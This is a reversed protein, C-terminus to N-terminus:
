RLMRSFTQQQITQGQYSADLCKTQKKNKQQKKNSNKNKAALDCCRGEQLDNKLKIQGTELLM